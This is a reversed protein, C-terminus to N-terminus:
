FEHFTCCWFHAKHLYLIFKPHHHTQDLKMSQLLPMVTTLSTLLPPSQAHMPCPTYPFQVEWEIKSHVYVKELFFQRNFIKFSM